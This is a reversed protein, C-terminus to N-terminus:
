HLYFFFPFSFLMGDCRDLVGGHGPFISGSDKIGVERKWRSELLDGLQSLVALIIGWKIYYFMSAKPFFDTLYCIHLLWLTIMGLISFVVGGIAGELTKNPSITPALRVRGITKGVIYAGSDCLAVAIIFLTILGPGSNEKHLVILHAPVWAFYFLIFASGLLNRISAPSFFTYIVAIVGFSVIFTLHLHKFEGLFASLTIVPILAVSIYYLLSGNKSELIKMFEYGAVTALFGIFITLFLRLGPVWLLIATLTILTLGTIIREAM